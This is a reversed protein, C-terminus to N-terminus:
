EFIAEVVRKITHLEKLNRKRLFQCIQGLVGVEKEGFLLYDVSVDLYQALHYLKESTCRCRGTEIRSYQDKSINLAVAMDLSKIGKAIRAEQIRYGVSIDDIDEVSYKLMQRVEKRGCNKGFFSLSALSLKVVYITLAKEQTEPALCNNVTARILTAGILKNHIDYGVNEM